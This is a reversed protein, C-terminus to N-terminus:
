CPGTTHFAMTEGDITNFGWQNVCGPDERYDSTFTRDAKQVRIARGTPHPGYGTWVTHNMEMVSNAFLGSDPNPTNAFGWVVGICTPCSEDAVYRTGNIDTHGASEVKLGITNNRLTSYFVQGKGHRVRIGIGNGVLTNNQIKEWAVGNVEIGVDIGSVTVENVHHRTGGHLAIGVHPSDGKRGSGRRGTVTGRFVRLGLGGTARIGYAADRVDMNVDLVVPSGEVNDVHLLTAGRLKAGSHTAGPEYSLQIVKTIRVAETYTGAGIVVKDNVAAADVAAQITPHTTACQQGTPTGVCRVAALVPTSSLLAMATLVPLSLRM